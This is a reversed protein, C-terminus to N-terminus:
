WIMIRKKGEFPSYSGQNCPIPHDTGEPCYHGKFCLDGHGKHSLNGPNPVDVGSQCYHGASCLKSAFELGPEPCYYGPDCQQCESSSM